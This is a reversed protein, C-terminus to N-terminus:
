TLLEWNYSAFSGDDFTVAGGWERYLNSPTEEDNASISIEGEASQAFLVGTTILTGSQSYVYGACGIMAVQGGYEVLAPAGVSSYFSPLHTPLSLNIESVMQITPEDESEVDVLESRYMRMSLGGSGESSAYYFAGEADRLVPLAMDGTSAIWGRRAPEGDTGYEVVFLRDLSAPSSDFSCTVFPIAM